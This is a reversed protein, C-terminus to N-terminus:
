EALGYSIRDGEKLIHVRKEKILADLRNKIVESDAPIDATLQSANKESENLSRIISLDVLEDTVNKVTLMLQKQKREAWDPLRSASSRMALLLNNIDYISYLYSNLTNVAEVTSGMEALAGKLEDIKAVATKMGKISVQGHRAKMEDIGEKINKIEEYLSFVDSKISEIIKIDKEINESASELKLVKIEDHIDAIRTKLLGLSEIEKHIDSMAGAVSEFRTIDETDKQSIMDKIDSINSVIRNYNQLSEELRENVESAPGSEAAPKRSVMDKIEDINLLISNDKRSMFEKLEEIGSLTENKAKSLAEVNRELMERSEELGSSIGSINSLLRNDKTSIVSKLEEISSEVGPYKLEEVASLMRNSGLLLSEKMEDVTGKLENISALSISDKQSLIELNKELIANNDQLMNSIEDLRVDANSDALVDNMKEMNNRIAAMGSAINEINRPYPMAEIVEIMRALLENNREISSGLREALDKYSFSALSIDLKKVLERLIIRDEESIYFKMGGYPREEDDVPNLFVDTM